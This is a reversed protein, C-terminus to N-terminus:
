TLSSISNIKPPHSNKHPHLSYIGQVITRKYRRSQWAMRAMGGKEFRRDMKKRREVGMGRRTM